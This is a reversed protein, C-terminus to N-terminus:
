EGRSRRVAKRRQSRLRKALRIQHAVTDDDDARAAADDCAEAPCNSQTSDDAGDVRLREIYWLLDHCTSWGSLRGGRPRLCDVSDGRDGTRTLHARGSGSEPLVVVGDPHRFGWAAFPLHPVADQAAQLAWHHSADPFVRSFLEAFRDDGVRPAAITCTTLPRLAPQVNAFDLAALMALSGGMSHGTLVLAPRPPRGEGGSAAHETAERQLEAEVAALLRPRLSLYAEVFGRHLTLETPLGAGRAYAATTGDDNGYTVDTLVNKGTCSGRFAVFITRADRVLLAHTEHAACGVQAVVRLKGDPGGHEAAERTLDDGIRVLQEREGEIEASHYAALSLRACRVALSRDFGEPVDAIVTAVDPVAAAATAVVPAAPETQAGVSGILQSVAVVGGVFAIPLPPPSQPRHALGQGAFPTVHMRLDRIRESVVARNWPQGRSPEVVRDGIFMYDVAGGRRASDRVAVHLQRPMRLSAIAASASSQLLLLGIWACRVYTMRANQVRISQV